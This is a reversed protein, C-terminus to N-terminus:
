NQVKISIVVNATNSYDTALGVNVVKFIGVKNGATKFVYEDGIALVPASTATAADAILKVAAYDTTSYISTTQKSFKTANKVTWNTIATLGTTTTGAPTSNPAYMTTHPGWTTGNGNYYVFDIKAQDAEVLGGAKYTIGTASACTSYTIGDAPTNYITINNALATLVPTAVAPATVKFAFTHENANKDTARLKYNGAVLKNLAVIYVGDSKTTIEGTTFSKITKVTADDKLLMVSELGAAATISGKIEVSDSFSVADLKVTVTSATDETCSTFLAGAAVAVALLLSKFNKM